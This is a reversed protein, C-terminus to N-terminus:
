KESYDQMFKELGIKTLSHQLCNDYLNYPITCIDAGMKICKYIHATNRISACIVKTDYGYEKYSTTIDKVLKIGSEKSIDELRGIFPSVYTANANAALVAQTLSFVLTINVKINDATLEKCLRLGEYNCPLKIVVKKSLAAYYYAQSKMEDYNESTVEVSVSEISKINEVEAILYEEKTGEKSILTPNTTIGQILGLESLKRIKLVDSSDLYFKM